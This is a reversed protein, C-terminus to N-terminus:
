NNEFDVRFLYAGPVRNCDVIKPSYSTRKAADIAAADLLSSGASVFIKAGLVQGAASLNVEVQASGSLGQDRAMAPMEPAYKNITSAEVYPASCGPKPTPSPTPPSAPASTAETGPGASATVDPGVPGVAIGTDRPQPGVPADPKSVNALRPLHPRAPTNSHPRQPIMKHPVPPKTPQPKPPVIHVIRIRGAKPEPAADVFKVHVLPGLLVHAAISIAVALYIVKVRTRKM